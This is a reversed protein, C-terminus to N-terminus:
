LLRRLWPLGGFLLCVGLIGVCGKRIPCVRGRASVGAFVVRLSGICKVGVFVAVEWVVGAGLSANGKAGFTVVDAVCGGM